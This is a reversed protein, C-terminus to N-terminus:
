KGLWENHNENSRLNNIVYEAFPIDLSKENYVIKYDIVLKFLTNNINKIIGNEFLKKITEIVDLITDASLNYNSYVELLKDIYNKAYELFHIGTFEDFAEGKLIKKVIEVEEDTWDYEDRYLKNKLEKEYKEVQELTM